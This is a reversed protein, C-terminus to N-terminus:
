ELSIGQNFNLFENKPPLALKASRLDTYLSSLSTRYQNTVAAIETALSKCNSCVRVYPTGNENYYVRYICYNETTSAIFDIEQSSFIIKQDFDFKTTKVDLNTINGNHAELTFDYPLGSEKEKNYWTFHFIEGKQMKLALYSNVFEEGLRGTEKFIDNAKDIDYKGFKKSSQAFGIQSEVELEKITSLGNENIKNEIFAAVVNIMTDKLVKTGKRISELNLGLENIKRYDESAQNFLLFVAKENKLGFWFLFWKLGKGDRQATTRIASVVSVRERGGTRIKPANFEGSIREIRDFHADLYVFSNEYIFISDESVADRNSLFTLVDAALGIHTQNSTTAIGLDAASLMKYGIKREEHLEFFM